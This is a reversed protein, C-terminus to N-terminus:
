SAISSLSTGTLGLDVQSLLCVQELAKTRYLGFFVRGFMANLWRMPIPDAQSDLIDVLNQMDAVNFIQSITPKPSAGSVALLATYWDEM